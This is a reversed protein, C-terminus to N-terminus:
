EFTLDSADEPDVLAEHTTQGLRELQRKTLRSRWDARYNRISWEWFRDNDKLLKRPCCALGFTYLDTPEKIPTGDVAVLSDNADVVFLAGPENGEGDSSAFLKTGNSLVIVHPEQGWRLEDEDWGQAELENPTAPRYDIIKLGRLM